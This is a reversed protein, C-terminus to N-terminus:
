HAQTEQRPFPANPAASRAAHDDLQEQLTSNREKVKEIQTRVPLRDLNTVFRDLIATSMGFGHSVCMFQLKQLIHLLDDVDTADM